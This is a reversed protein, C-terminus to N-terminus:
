SLFLVSVLVNWETDTEIRYKIETTLIKGNSFLAERWEMFLHRETRLGCVPKEILRPLSEVTYHWNVISGPGGFNYFTIEYTYNTGYNLRKDTFVLIDMQKSLYIINKDRKLELLELNGNPKNPLQWKVKINLFYDDIKEDVFL